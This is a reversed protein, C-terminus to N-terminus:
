EPIVPGIGDSPSLKSFGISPPVINIEKWFNEENRILQISRFIEHNVFSKHRVM